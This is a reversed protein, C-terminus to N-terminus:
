APVVVNPQVARLEGEIEAVRAMVGDRLRDLSGGVTGALQGISTLQSKMSRIADIQERIGALAATVRQADLEVERGRLTALSLLRALRVAAELLAPQPDAPDVVCYVDDGIVTFPDIGAPAHEPTFVVLGVCAARNERAERLEARIAPGSMRKDKAEIVVRLDHGATLRPDIALVFDGKKSAHISGAETSTRELFDSCGRAIPALLDELVDEFDTGKATGKAREIARAGTAAELAALREALRNFGDAVEVRFQHLPSGLRTPDLLQALRSADGDFYTGLLTRMRGIASDRRSEDFLDALLARLAGRDGLFRELTRPLRGDGDSFNARLTADLAQAARDNVAETRSLLVSFERQIVDVNVSVGADQLAVLGIRLARELLVQREDAPREGVFAALGADALALEHVLIREGVVEVMEVEATRTPAPRDVPRLPVLRGAEMATM